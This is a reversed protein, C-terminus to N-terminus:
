TNGREYLYLDFTARYRVTHPDSGDVRNRTNKYLYAGFQECLVVQHDLARIIADTAAETSEEDSMPGVVNVELEIQNREDFSPLDQLSCVTFRSEGKKEVWFCVPYEPAAEAILKRLETRLEKTNFM